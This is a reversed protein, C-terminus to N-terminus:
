LVCLLQNEPPLRFALNGEIFLTWTKQKLRMLTSLAQMLISKEFFHACAKKDGRGRKMRFFLDANM